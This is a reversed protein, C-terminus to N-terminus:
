EFPKQLKIFGVPTENDVIFYFAISDSGLDRNLRETGFQDELYLEPGGEEWHNGFHQTYATECLRQM